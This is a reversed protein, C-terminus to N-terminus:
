SVQSRSLQNIARPPDLVQCGVPIVVTGTVLTGHRAALQLGM